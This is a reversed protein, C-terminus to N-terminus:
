IKLELSARRYNLYQFIGIYGEFLGLFYIFGGSDSSRGRAFLSYNVIFGLEPQSGSFITHWGSSRLWGLIGTGRRDCVAFFWSFEVFKRKSFGDM